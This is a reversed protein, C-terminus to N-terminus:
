LRQMLRLWGGGVMSGKRGMEGVGIVMDMLVSAGLGEAM